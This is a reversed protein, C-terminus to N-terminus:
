KIVTFKKSTKSQDASILLYYNGPKLSSINIQFNENLVNNHTVTMVSKGIADIIKYSVSSSLADLGLTVNLFESAPNPAVDIKITSKVQNTVGTHDVFPHTTTQMSISPIM